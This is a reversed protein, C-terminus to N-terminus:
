EEPIALPENYPTLQIFLDKSLNEDEVERFIRAIKYNQDDGYIITGKPLDKLNM